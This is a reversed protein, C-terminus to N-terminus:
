DGDLGEIVAEWVEKEIQIQENIYQVSHLKRSDSEECSLWKGLLNDPFFPNSDLASHCLYIAHIKTDSYLILTLFIRRLKLIGLKGCEVNEVNWVGRDIKEM